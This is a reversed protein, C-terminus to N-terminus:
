CLNENLLIFFFSEELFSSPEGGCILTFFIKSRFTLFERSPPTPKHTPAM